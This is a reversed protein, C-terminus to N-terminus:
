CRLSTSCTTYYNEMVCFIIDIHCILVHMTLFMCEGIINNGLDYGYAFGRARPVSQHDLPFFTVCDSPHRAPYDDVQFLVGYRSPILDAIRVFCNVGAATDSSAVFNRGFAERSYDGVCPLVAQCDCTDDTIHLFTVSLCFLVFLYDSVICIQLPYVFCVPMRRIWVAQLIIWGYSFPQSVMRWLFLSPDLQEEALSFAWSPGSEVAENLFRGQEHENNMSM